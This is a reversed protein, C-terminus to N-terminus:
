DCSGGETDDAKKREVLIRASQREGQERSAATALHRLEADSCSECQGDTTPEIMAAGCTRCLDDPFDDDHFSM